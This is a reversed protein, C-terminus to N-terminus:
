ASTPTPAALRHVRARRRRGQLAANIGALSARPPPRRTAPPATSRAPWSCAAAAAEVELTPRSSARAVYDYEIAYGYGCSRGGEGAGPHHAPLGGARRGAPPHLHRQPLGHRRRLGEPELFIQHGTRTPSACSRTRSPPATARASAARDPRLVAALPALNARIIAHTAATTTTIWCPIQPTTSASPSSPSRCPRTTAPSCSWARGTSRHPRRPAAPTGTKLRGLRLGLAACASALARQGAARRGRGAPTKEEGVHILGRLFTGTTLVVAGARIRGATPRSSARGGRRGRRGPGRGRGRDGRPEPTARIAAQMARATSSATPRPARARCPRARPATSCASSSAPRTPSGRGDPRRARRDRARAPGQRARRHGPQLVDRRHHRLQHTVLATRAGM